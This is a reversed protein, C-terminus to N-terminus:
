RLARAEIRASRVQKTGDAADTWALVLDDGARVMQPFGSDRSGSTQAVIQVAGPEGDNPVRRLAIQATGGDANRLWSVVASGDGLLAVDVRGAVDGADIDVTDTFSEGADRSRALRVRPREDAATFWAVALADGLSDVAPGNVPCGPFEWGDHAVLAPPQWRSGSTRSAYIDRIEASTRDRYVAIPGSPTLAVDTQCCDCVLEDVLDSALLSGDAGLRASRLTMNGAGHHTDSDGTTNRGDLWIAGVAGQWPFLTVFGHETPTGDTHPTIPASWSEGGDNSISVVVDYSYTGGPRKQLWHAAWLRGEIPVVSPFDAWNVFWDNGRAVTRPASWAGERLTAYRLVSGDDDPELWSLVAEGSAASALHPEASGAAAALAIMEIEPGGAPTCSCLAFSLASAPLWCSAPARFFRGM